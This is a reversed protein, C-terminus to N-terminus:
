LGYPSFNSAIYLVMTLLPHTSVLASWGAAVSSMRFIAQCSRENKGGMALMSLCHSAAM